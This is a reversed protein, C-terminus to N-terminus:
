ASLVRLNKVRESKTPEIARKAVVADAEPNEKPAIKPDGVGKFALYGRLLPLAIAAAVAHDRRL